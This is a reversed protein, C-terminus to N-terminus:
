PNILSIVRLLLIGLLFSCTILAISYRNFYFIDNKKIKTKESTIIKIITVALVAILILYIVAEM